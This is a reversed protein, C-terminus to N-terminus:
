DFKMRFNKFEEMELINFLMDLDLVLEEEEFGGGLM